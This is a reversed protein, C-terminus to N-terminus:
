RSRVPTGDTLRGKPDAAIVDGAAVGGVIEITEGVRDGTTVIREEAVGNKLVYVRSTGSITELASRPVLLAPASEPQQISATAFLGPKLRGDPNATIAEVTLARQDARLAPSVFRITADFVENPYADVTLKVRQGVKILSVAQEPITLEVRLPDIRVITAVKTGRTVYDGASVLREAVLGSFPARVATDAVTKRALAVRARAAQLSRYSQEAANQAMQYQQRAAEVQTRRQDFESQSVVKQDLLSRIRAFEAEAYELSAQANMVDPVTKPTFAAGDRLGLRAEIQSANAEAEQLQAAAEAPSVRILVAGEAVRTGREVPTAIVRGGSEASVEAEEDAHLSGTVRIFRDIPRSEVTATAIAIPEPKPTPGEEASTRSSCGSAVAGSLLLAPLLAISYHRSTFM